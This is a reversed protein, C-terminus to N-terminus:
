PMLGRHVVVGGAVNPRGSFGRLDVHRWSASTRMPGTRRRASTPGPDYVTVLVESWQCASCATAAAVPRGGMQDVGVRQQRDFRVPQEGVAVARMPSSVNSTMWKRPCVGPDIASAKAAPVPPTVRKWRRDNIKQRTPM